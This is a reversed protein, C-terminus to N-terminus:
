TACHWDPSDVRRAHDIGNAATPTSAIAPDRSTRPRDPARAAGHGAAYGLLRNQLDAYPAAEPVPNGDRVAVAAQTAARIAARYPLSGTSIRRVGLAALHAPAIGPIALVNLPRAIGAGLARISEEDTVGPVFIGDAGADAYHRARQLTAEISAGEGLWNTDVRANVFLDPCRRVTSRV